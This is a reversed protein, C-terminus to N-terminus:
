LEDGRLPVGSQVPRRRAIALGFPVILVVGIAVESWWVIPQPPLMWPVLLLRALPEFCLTCVVITASIRSRDVRWRQGLLAYMPGFVIGGLIWLPNYPVRAITTFCTAFRGLAVSEIPSCTMAFYGALAPAVVMLGLVMARRRREQTMGAAFSLLLWPASIMSVTPAWAGLVLRSGLYQDAAGFAFGFILAVFYAM